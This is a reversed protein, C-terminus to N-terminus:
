TRNMAAGWSETAPGNGHASFYFTTADCWRPTDTAHDIAPDNCM